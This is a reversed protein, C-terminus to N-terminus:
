TYNTDSYKLCIKEIESIKQKEKDDLFALQKKYFLIIKNTAAFNKLKM